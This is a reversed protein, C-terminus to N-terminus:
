DDEWIGNVGSMSFVLFGIVIAILASAWSTSDFNGIILIGLGLLCLGGLCGCGRMWKGRKKSAAPATPASQGETAKSEEQSM